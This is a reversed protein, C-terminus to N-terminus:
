KRSAELEGHREEAVSEAYMEQFRNRLLSSGALQATMSAPQSARTIASGDLPLGSRGM